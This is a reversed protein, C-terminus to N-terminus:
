PVHPLVPADRLLPAVADKSSLIPSSVPWAIGLQPDNWRIAREHEPAYYDTCKYAFDATESTVCFGHAFGPPIWIQQHDSENLEIGFWKGFHTSGKRVDVAVDYVSGHTVYVLKGQSTPEQFHLGRLTGRASRSVNDQVFTAEIGSKAYRDQHFSEFFFGRADGFVRPEVLLVGPLPTRTVKM